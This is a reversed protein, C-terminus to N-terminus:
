QGGVVRVGGVLQAGLREARGGAGCRLGPRGGPRPRPAGDDVAPQDRRRLGEVQPRPEAPRGHRGCTDAADGHVGLAAARPEEPRQERGQHGVGAVVARDDRREEGGSRPDVPPEPVLGDALVGLHLHGDLGEGPDRCRGPHRQPAGVGPVLVVDGGVVGDVVPPGGGLVTRQRAPARQPARQVAVRRDGEREVRVAVGHAVRRPAAAVAVLRANRRHQHV